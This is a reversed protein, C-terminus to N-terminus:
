PFIHTVVGSVTCNTRDLAQFLITRGSARSPIFLDLSATGTGDAVDLGLLRPSAIEVALGPCGPVNVSGPNRGALFFVKDGPTAGTATFTNTAGATGPDPPALTFEQPPAVPTLLLIGTQQTTNNTATVAIQRTNNIAGGFLYYVVWHGVDNVILDEIRFTGIGEYRVDLSLPLRMVVDGLDNMSLVSNGTGCSTFVEWGVDDSYRAAERDCDTSTALIAVGGVQNSENIAIGSTALYSEPLGQPVGLDEAIMTDLDLRKCTFSRDVLVRQDNIDQPDFVGTSSLDLVGGPATFLVPYRYTGNSSYGIIDGLNNLSTAHSAVHGPLAGLEQVTYGGSGDPYWAVAKGGFEPSYAPGAAGVIVGLDSIRSAISSVAGAPLPLLAVPTGSAAVFGRLNGSVTMSGIVVGSANMSSVGVMSGLFEYNYSPPGDAFAPAVLASVLVLVVPIFEAVSGFAVIRSRTRMTRNRWQDVRRIRWQAPRSTLDAFVVSAEDFIQVWFDESSNDMSIAIFHFDITIQTYGPTHVDYSGTTYFSSSTGSNDQINAARSGQWAYTGRTYLSCDGGGDTYSARAGKSITTRSCRRTPPRLRRIPRPRRAV